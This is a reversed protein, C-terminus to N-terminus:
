KMASLYKKAEEAENSEPYKAILGEYFMKANKKDNTNDLSVATHLLLTPMYSAKSYISTSKKYYAFAEAYNKRKFNIEGIMYSSVAPKYNKDVLHTYYESAKTYNKEDFFEKAKTDVDKNSMKELDDIITVSSTRINPEEGIKSSSTTIEDQLQKNENMINLITFILFVGGAIFLSLTVLINSGSQEEKEVTNISTSETKIIEAESNKLREEQTAEIINQVRLNIYLAETKERDGDSKALAKAWTSKVKRDEEIELMVQEYIADEDVLDIHQNEAQTQSTAHKQKYESIAPKAEAAIDKAHNYVAKTLSPNSNNITKDNDEDFRNKGNTGPWFYLAIYPIVLLLFIPLWWGSLNMDHLRKIKIIMNSYMAVLTPLLFIILLESGSPLTMSKNYVGVLYMTGFVAFALVAGVVWMSVFGLLEYGLNQLRNVRGSPNFLKKLM